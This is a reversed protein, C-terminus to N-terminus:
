TEGPKLTRVHGKAAAILKEDETVLEAKSSMTASLFSADYYTINEELAVNLVDSADGIEAKDMLALVRSLASILSLGEETGLTRTNAVKKWIANGAEYEALPITAGERLKVHKGEELLSVNASTDFIMRTM